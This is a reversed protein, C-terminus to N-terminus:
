RCAQGARTKALEILEQNKRKWDPEEKLMPLDRLHDGRLLHELNKRAVACLEPSPEPVYDRAGAAAFGKLMEAVIRRSGPDHGATSSPTRGRSREDMAVAPQRGVLKPAPKRSGFNRSTASMRTKNRTPEDMALAPPLGATLRRPIVIPAVLSYSAGTMPLSAGHLAQEICALLTEGVENVLPHVIASEVKGHENVSARLLLTPLDGRDSRQPCGTGRSFVIDELKRALEGRAPAGGRLYLDVWPLAPSQEKHCAREDRAFTVLCERRCQERNGGDGMAGGCESSCNECRDAANAACAKEINEAAPEASKAPPTPEGAMAGHASAVVLEARTDVKDSKCSSSAAALVLAVWCRGM